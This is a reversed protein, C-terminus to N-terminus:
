VSVMFYRSLKLSALAHSCPAILSLLGDRCDSVNTPVGEVDDRSVGSSSAWTISLLLVGGRRPLKVPLVFDFIVGGSCSVSIPHTVDVCM